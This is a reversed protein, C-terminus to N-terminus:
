KDTTAIIITPFYSFLINCSLSLNQTTTIAPLCLTLNSLHNLLAWQKWGGGGGGWNWNIWGVPLSLLCSLWSLTSEMHFVLNQYNIQLFVSCCFPLIVIWINLILPKSTDLSLQSHLPDDQRMKGKIKESLYYTPWSPDHHTMIPWNLLSYKM